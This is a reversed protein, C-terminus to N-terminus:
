GAGGEMAPAPSMVPLAKGDVFLRCWTELCLMGWLGRDFASDQTLAARLAEPRFLGRELSRRSLLLDHVWDRLPGAFWSSLPVPFGLKDRRQLIQPPVLGEVARRLIYKLRGGSFKVAAPLSFAFDALRTSLFPVRSELSWAMSTRDEVQLLAPLWATLEFHLVKDLLEVEGPANFLDRYREELQAQTTGSQWDPALLGQLEARRLILRLYRDAPDGFLGEAWFSAMLPRYNRLQELNPLLDALELGLRTSPGNIGQRLAAELYLLYYRAYGGFIEDAGQGGLVVKVRQSALRSVCYQPFVGPAAVPEDLFWILREFSDAFDAATPFVQAHRTGAQAATIGAFATDDYIGGEAFGATFTQVPGAVLQSALGTIAATDIGGSLHCGLPVDSRLQLRVSDRLLDLLEGAAQEQAIDRKAFNPQWYRQVQTRGDQDVTLWHGPLLKRIGQFLTEEGLTYQFTLYEALAAQDLCAPAADLALIAKVESAFVLGKADLRYYLPKIGFPDRALFLRRQQRDWVAFAFMGELRTLCAPGQREFLALLVETDTRSRFACGARELQEREELYNYIEGNYTISLNGGPSSMPQRGLESLDIISLRKHGLGLNGDTFYGQDDPGRHHLAAGMRRLDGGNVQRQPDFHFVGFIGCM